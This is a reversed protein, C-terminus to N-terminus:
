PDFTQEQKLRAVLLQDFYSDRRPERCFKKVMQKEVVRPNVRKKECVQEPSSKCVQQMIPKPTTTEQFNRSKRPLMQRRRAARSLYHRRLFSLQSPGGAPSASRAKRRRRRRLSNSSKKVSHCMQKPILSCKEEPLIENM